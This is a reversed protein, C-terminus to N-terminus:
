GRHCQRRRIDDIDRDVLGGERTSRERLTLFEVLTGLSRVTLLDSTAQLIDGLTHGTDDNLEARM